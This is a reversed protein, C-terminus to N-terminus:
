SAWCSFVAHSFTYVIVKVAFHNSSTQLGIFIFTLMIHLVHMNVYVMCHSTKWYWSEHHMCAHTYDIYMRNISNILTSAHISSSSQMHCDTNNFNMFNLVWYKSCSTHSNTATTQYTNTHSAVLCNPILWQLFTHVHAICMQVCFMELVKLHPMCICPNM